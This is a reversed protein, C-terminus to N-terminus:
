RQGQWRGGVPLRQRGLWVRDYRLSGTLLVAPLSLCYLCPMHSCTCKWGIPTRELHIVAFTTHAQCSMDCLGAHCCSELQQLDGVEGAV